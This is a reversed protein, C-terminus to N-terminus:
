NPRRKVTERTAAVGPRDSPFRKRKLPIATAAVNIKCTIEITIIALVNLLRKKTMTESTKGGIRHATKESLYQNAL